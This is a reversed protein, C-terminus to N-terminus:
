KQITRLRNDGKVPTPLESYFIISVHFELYLNGALFNLSLNRVLINKKTQLKKPGVKSLFDNNILANSWPTIIIIIIIIIIELIQAEQGRTLFHRWRVVEVEGEM